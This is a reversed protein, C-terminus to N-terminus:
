ITEGFAFIWELHRDSGRAFDVQFITDYPLLLTLGVGYGYVANNWGMNLHKDSTEGADALFNWYLAIRNSAFERIPLWSLEIYTKKVIPIRVELNSGLISEGEMVSNFMGRIREGYGFFVHNYRPIDAGEALSSHVRAALTLFDSLPLYQRVDFSVRGFNVISEGLGYKEFTVDVYTGQSAYTKLDRSDYYYEFQISAFVDKGNLSLAVSNSDDTNRAVYNYAVGVSLISYLDLRKGVGIYFDGFSDDFQGASYSSGLGINRGHSYSAGLWLLYEKDRGMSPSSYTIAAFPDYGLAFMGELREAMGRFNLDVVGLGAYLKNWSIVQDRFGVIPYPWVYWREEVYILLDTHDKSVPEPQTLVRTFLGTSYIRERAFDLDAATVSDGEKFPLERLIVYSKTLTNGEIIIRNVIFPSTSDPEDSIVSACINFSPVLFFLSTILFWSRAM